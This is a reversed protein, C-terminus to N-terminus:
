KTSWNNINNVLILVYWPQIKILTQDNCRTCANRVNQGSENNMIIVLKKNCKLMNVIIDAHSKCWFPLTIDNIQYSSYM